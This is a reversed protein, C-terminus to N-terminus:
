QEYSCNRSNLLAIESGNGMAIGVTASALAAADNIGDGVMAVSYQKNLAQILAAKQDPQQEGYYERIHLTEAIEKCVVTHDGSLLVTNLGDQQLQQIVGKAEERITDEFSWAAMLEKECILYVQYGAPPSAESIFKPHVLRYITGNEKEVAIIGQGPIEQVSSFRISIGTSNNQFRKCLLRAFPHTSYQEM